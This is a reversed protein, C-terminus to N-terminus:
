GTVSTATSISELLSSTLDFVGHEARGGGAGVAGILLRPQKGRGHGNKAVGVM